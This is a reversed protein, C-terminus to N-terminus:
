GDGPELLRLPGRPTSPLLLRFTVKPPGAEICAITGGHAEAVARAIALGLGTGGKDVRTTVFRRFLKAKIHPAIEGANEILIEAHTARDRFTVTVNNPATGHTQANDVLNQALRALWRADGRVSLRPGCLKLSESDEGDDCLGAFLKYVDVSTANEVGRAEIRALSLLEGLMTEIRSTAEQIRALFRKAEKPEDIAGDSLVEASARIAAVPNKLEHSLDAAFTEIFPRGELERRMTEIARSLEKVERGRARPARALLKGESVRVAFDTLEEIPSAITRGILAAAVAAAAGLTVSLGLITPAFDSLTRRIAITPKDVRVMGFAADDVVIPVTVSVTESPSLDAQGTPAFLVEGDLALISMRMDRPLSSMGAAVEELSRDNKAIDNEILAAIALAESKASEEALATTRAMVRELVLLGLGLAFAGVIGALALFIQMRISVGTRRSRWLRVVIFAVFLGLASVSLPTLVVEPRM